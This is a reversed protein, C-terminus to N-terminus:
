LVGWIFTSVTLITGLFISGYLFIKEKLQPFYSQNVSFGLAQFPIDISLNEVGAKEAEAKISKQLDQGLEYMRVGTTEKILLYVLWVLLFSAIVLALFIVLITTLYSSSSASNSLNTILDTLPWGNHSGYTIYVSLGNNMFHIIMGPIINGTTLCIFALFWGIITAYFFQEINLHMLGFLLGSILIMKKWGLKNFGKLLMGRSAIEECFGPLIATVFLALIFASISYDAISPSGINEYGFLTIILNFFSSIAINLIFVIVGIGISLLVGKYNIKKFRFDSFVNRLTKGQLKKYLFVPLLFMIVVQILLSLFSSEYDGLFNLLGMRSIIRIVVFSVMLILYIFTVDYFENRPKKYLNKIQNEM